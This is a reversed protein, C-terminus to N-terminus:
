RSRDGSAVGFAATDAPTPVSSKVLVLHLAEATRASDANSVGDRQGGNNFSVYVDRGLWHLLVPGTDCRPLRQGGTGMVVRTGSRPLISRGVLPLSTRELDPRPLPM